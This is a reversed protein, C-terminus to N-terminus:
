LGGGGGCVSLCVFRQSIGEGHSQQTCGVCFSSIIRGPQLLNTLATRPDWPWDQESLENSLAWPPARKLPGAESATRQRAWLNRLCRKFNLDLFGHEVAACQAGSSIAGHLLWWLKEDPGHGCRPSTLHVQLLSFQVQRHLPFFFHPIQCHSELQRPGTRQIMAKLAQSPLPLDEKMTIILLLMDM